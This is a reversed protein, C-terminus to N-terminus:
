RTESPESVAISWSTKYVKGAHLQILDSKCSLEEIVNQRGPLSSWPEICVYPADTKPWHWFGLYPLDPFSVTVATGNVRSRLTVERDTNKLIVADEDFLDHRLPLIRNEELPYAEDQGSVLVEPSFGVRDPYCKQSFELVYDEFKEGPEMGVRFGPHGGVAFPMTEGSRNEVNWTIEVRNEVLQYQMRFCFAFPYQKRTEANDTLELILTDSKQEAVAFESASAFGHINMSYEKGHITYRSNWLRAIFPFLVPARGKWYAPDGQWLFERGSCSRLSMMQAGHTDVTLSLCSNHITIEM